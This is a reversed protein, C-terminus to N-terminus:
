YKTNFLSFFDILLCKLFLPPTPSKKIHPLVRPGHSIISWHNKKTLVCSYTNYLIDRPSPTSQFLGERRDIKRNYITWIKRRNNAFWWCGDRPEKALKVGNFIEVWPHHHYYHGRQRRWRPTVKKETKLVSFEEMPFTLPRRRQSSQSISRVM